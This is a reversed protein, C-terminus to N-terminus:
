IICVDADVNETVRLVMDLGEYKHIHAYLHMSSVAANLTGPLIGQSSTVVTLCSPGMSPVSGVSPDGLLTGAM